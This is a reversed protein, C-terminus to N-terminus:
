ADWQKDAKRFAMRFRLRHDGSYGELGRSMGLGSSKSQCPLQPQPMLSLNCADRSVPSKREAGDEALAIAPGVAEDALAVPRGAEALELARM